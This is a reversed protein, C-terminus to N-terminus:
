SSGLAKIASRKQLGGVGIALRGQMWTGLMRLPVLTLLLLGWALLWPRDLRGQLAGLGVLWWALLWLLYQTAHVGALGLLRRPLRVQRM